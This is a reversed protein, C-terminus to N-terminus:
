YTVSQVRSARPWLPADDVGFAARRIVRGLFHAAGSQRHSLRCSRHFRELDREGAGVISM